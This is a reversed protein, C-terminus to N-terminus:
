SKNKLRMMPVFSSGSPMVRILKAEIQGFNDPSGIIVVRDNVNINEVTIVDRFKNITTNKTIVIIKETKNQDQVLISPTPSSNNIKIVIGFTGYSGMLNKSRLDFPTGMMEGMPGGFGSRSGIFNKEYNNNWRYSFEAKKFGILEGAAFISILIIIALICVFIVKFTKAHFFNKLNIDKFM